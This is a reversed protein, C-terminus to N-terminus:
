NLFILTGVDFLVEDSLSVIERNHNKCFAKIADADKHLNINGCFYLTKLGNCLGSAGGIFGHKFPPLSIYGECIPLVDIGMAQAAKAISQDATIIANESVKCVSCKTYGQNVNVIKYKQKQAYNAM